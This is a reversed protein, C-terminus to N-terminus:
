AIVFVIKLHRISAIWLCCLYLCGKITLRVLVVLNSYFREARVDICDFMSMVWCLPWNELRMVYSFPVHSM